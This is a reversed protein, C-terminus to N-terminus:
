PKTAMLRGFLTTNAGRPISVSIDDAPSGPTITFTAGNVVGSTLPITAATWPNQLTSGWQFLLTSDTLSVDYRKFTFLFTTPLPAPPLLTPFLV